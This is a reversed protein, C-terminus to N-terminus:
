NISYMLFNNKCKQAGWGTVTCWDGVDARRSLTDPLCIPQVHTNFQIGGDSTDKVKIIAIDNSHPGM